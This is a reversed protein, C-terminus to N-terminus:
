RGRGASQPSVGDLWGWGQAQPRSVKMSGASWGRESGGEGEGGPWRWSVERLGEAQWDLLLTMAQVRPSSRLPERPVLLM